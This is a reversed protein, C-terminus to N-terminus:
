LLVFTLLRWLTIKKENEVTNGNYFVNKEELIITGTVKMVALYPIAKIEYISKKRLTILM